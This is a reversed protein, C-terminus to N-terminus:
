GHHDLWVDRVTVNLALFYVMLGALLGHTLATGQFRFPENPRRTWVLGALGLFAMSVVGHPYIRLRLDVPDDYQRWAVAALILVLLALAALEIRTRLAATM